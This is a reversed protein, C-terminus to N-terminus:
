VWVYYVIAFYKKKKNDHKYRLVGVPMHVTIPVPRLALRIPGAHVGNMHYGTHIGYTCLCGTFRSSVWSVVITNFLCNCYCCLRAVPYRSWVMSSGAAMIPLFNKKKKKKDRAHLKSWPSIGETRFTSDAWPCPQAVIYM